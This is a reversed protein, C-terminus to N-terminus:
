RSCANQTFDDVAPQFGVGFQHFSVAQSLLLLRFKAALHRVVTVVLRYNFPLEPSVVRLEGTMAQPGEQRLRVPLCPLRAGVRFRRPRHHCRRASTAVTADLTIDGTLPRAEKFDTQGPEPM